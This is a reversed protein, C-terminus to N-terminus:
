PAKTIIQIECAKAVIGATLEGDREGREVEGAEQTLKRQQQALEDIKIQLSKIQNHIVIVRNHRLEKIKGDAERQAKKARNAKLLELLRREEKAEEEEISHILSTQGKEISNKFHTFNFSSFKEHKQLADYSWACTKTTNYHPTYPANMGIGTIWENWTFYKLPDSLCLIQRNNDWDMIQPRDSPKRIDIIKHIYVFKKQFYYALYYGKKSGNMYSDDWYRKGFKHYNIVTPHDNGNCIFAITLGNHSQTDMKYFRKM